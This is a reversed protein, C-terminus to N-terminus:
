STEQTDCKRRGVELVEGGNEGGEIREGCWRRGGGKIRVKREEGRGSWRLRGGKFAHFQIIKVVETHKSSHHSDWIM